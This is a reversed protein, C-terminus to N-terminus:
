IQNSSVDYGEITVVWVYSFHIQIGKLSTHIDLFRPPPPLTSQHVYDAVGTSIPNVSTGFVLPPVHGGTGRIWCGQTVKIDLLSKFECDDDRSIRQNLAIEFINIVVM